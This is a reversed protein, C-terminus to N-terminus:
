SVGVEVAIMLTLRKGERYQLAGDWARTTLGRSTYGVSRSHPDYLLNRTVESSIGSNMKVEDSISSLLASAM